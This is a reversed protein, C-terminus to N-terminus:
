MDVDNATFWDLDFGDLHQCARFMFMGSAEVRYCDMLCGVIWGINWGSLIDYSLVVYHSDHFISTSLLKWHHWLFQVPFGLLWSSVMIWFDNSVFCALDIDLLDLTSVYLTLWQLSVFQRYELSLNYYIQILGLILVTPRYFTTHLLVDREQSSVPVLM